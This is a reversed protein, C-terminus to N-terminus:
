LPMSPDHNPIKDTQSDVKVISGTDKKRRQSSAQISPRPPSPMNQFGEKENRHGLPMALAPYAGQDHFAYPFPYYSPRYFM